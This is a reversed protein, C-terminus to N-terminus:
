TRSSGVRSGATGEQKVAKDRLLAQAISAGPRCYRIMRLGAMVADTLFVGMGSGLYEQAGEGTLVCPGPHPRKGGRHRHKGRPLPMLLPRKGGRDRLKPRPLALIPAEEGSLGPSHM